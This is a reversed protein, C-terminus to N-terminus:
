HISSPGLINSHINYPSEVSGLRKQLANPTPFPQHKKIIQIGQSM